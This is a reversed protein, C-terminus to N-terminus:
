LSDLCGFTLHKRCALILSNLNSYCVESVVNNVIHAYSSLMINLNKFLLGAQWPELWM